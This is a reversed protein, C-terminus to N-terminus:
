GTEFTLAEVTRRRSTRVLVDTWVAIMQRASESIPFAETAREYSRIARARTESPDRLCALMAAALEEVNGPEVLLGEEGVIEPVGGADTAIVPVGRICAELVVQGFPEPTPSAHVLATAGDIEQAPNEVFGAWEVPVELRDAEQRVARAYEEQGFMPSGVVRFRCGPYERGVVAAARVFEWQGKTPSIRGLITFIPPEPPRRARVSDADRAQDPAFGPYIVVTERPITRATAESNVVVTRPVRSLLRLLTALVSPLYDKSVRDHLYWVLPRATTLAVPVSLLHAKMSASQVIEAERANRRLARVVKLSDIVAHALLHPRLVDRRTLSRSRESMPVSRVDVGRARLAVPLAGEALCAVTLRARASSPLADVLRLLALEAGGLDVAHTIVVIRPAGPASGQPMM